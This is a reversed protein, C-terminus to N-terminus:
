KENSLLLWVEWINITAMSDLITFFLMFLIMREIGAKLVQHSLRKAVLSINLNLVEVRWAGRMMQYIM